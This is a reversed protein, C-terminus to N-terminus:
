QSSSAASSSSKRAELIPKWPLMNRLGNTLLDELHRLAAKSPDWDKSNNESDVCFPESIYDVSLIEHDPSGKIPSIKIDTLSVHYSPSMIEEGPFCFKYVMAIRYIVQLDTSRVATGAPDNVSESDIPELTSSRLSNEDDENINLSKASNGAPVATSRFVKYFFPHESSPTVSFTEQPYQQSYLSYIKKNSTAAAMQHFYNTMLIFEKGSSFQNELDLYIEQLLKQNEEDSLNMSCRVFKNNKDGLSIVLVCRAADIVFQQSYELSTNLGLPKQTSYLQLTEHNFFLSDIYDTNSFLSDRSPLKAFEISNLSCKKTLRNSSETLYSTNINREIPNIYLGFSKQRAIFDNWLETITQEFQTTATTPLKTVGTFDYLVNRTDSISSSSSAAQDPTPTRGWKLITAFHFMECLNIILEIKKYVSELTDTRSLRLTDGRIIVPRDSLKADEPISTSFFNEELLQFAESLKKDSDFHDNKHTFRHEIKLDHKFFKQILNNIITNEFLKTKRISRILAFLITKKIEGHSSQDDDFIKNVFQDIRKSYESLPHPDSLPDPIAMKLQEQVIETIKRHLNYLGQLMPHNPSYRHLTTIVRRLGDMAILKEFKPWTIHTVKPPNSLFRSLVNNSLSNQIKDQSESKIYQILYAQFANTIRRLMTLTNKSDAWKADRECENIFLESINYLKEAIEYPSNKKLNPIPIILPDSTDSTETSEHVSESHSLESISSQSSREGDEHFIRSPTSSAASVPTPCIM